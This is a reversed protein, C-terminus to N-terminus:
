FLVNRPFGIEIQKEVWFYFDFFTLLNKEVFDDFTVYTTNRSLDLLFVNSVIESSSANSLILFILESSNRYESFTKRFAYSINLSLKPSSFNFSISSFIKFLNILFALVNVGTFPFADVIIVSKQFSFFNKLYVM